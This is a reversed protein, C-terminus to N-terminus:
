QSRVSAAALRLRLAVSDNDATSRTTAYIFDSNEQLKRFRGKLNPPIAADNGIAQMVGVVIAEAQAVNVQSVGPRRFADPGIEERLMSCAAAFVDGVRRLQADPVRHASAFSNLFTKLPRSYAGAETYLALIRLVLEQERLRASRQGYLYRWAGDSNLVEL